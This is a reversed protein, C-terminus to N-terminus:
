YRYNLVALQFIVKSYKKTIKLLSVTGHLFITILLLLLLKDISTKRTFDSFRNTKKKLNSKRISEAIFVMICGAKVIVVSQKTLSIMKIKDFFKM